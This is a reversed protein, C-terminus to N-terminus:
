SLGPLVGQVWGLNDAVPTLQRTSLRYIAGNAASVHTGYLTVSDADLWWVVPTDPFPLKLQSGDTRVVSEGGERAVLAQGDPSLAAWTGIANPDTYRLVVRQKGSWDIMNVCVQAGPPVNHVDGGTCVSNCLAGDDVLPGIVPCAESGLAARRLGNTSDVLHYSVAAYPNPGGGLVSGVAVVLLGAHWAVPWEHLSTSSFIDVRNSGGLDEVTLTVKMPRASWDFVSLAIRTDDPSVAFVAQTRGKVNPLTAAGGTTGDVALFRLENPGSVFYARRLSTSFQPLIVGCCVGGIGYPRTPLQAFPTGPFPVPELDSAPSTTSAVVKGDSEVLSIM